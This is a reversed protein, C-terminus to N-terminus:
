INGDNDIITVTGENNAGIIGSTTSTLRVTFTENGELAINDDATPFTRCVRTENSRFVFTQANSSYDVDALNIILYNSYEYIMNGTASGPSTELTLTYDEVTNGTRTICIEAM